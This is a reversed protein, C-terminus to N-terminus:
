ASQTVLLRDGEVPADKHLWRQQSLLYFCHNIEFHVLRPYFIIGKLHGSTSDMTVPEVYALIMTIQRISLTVARLSQGFFAENVHLSSKPTWIMWEFMIKPKREALRDNSCATSRLNGHFYETSIRVHAIIMLIRNMSTTRETAIHPGKVLDPIGDRRGRNQTQACRLLLVLCAFALTLKTTCDM